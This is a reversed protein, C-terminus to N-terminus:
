KEDVVGLLTGGGARYPQASVKAGKCPCLVRQMHMVHEGHDVADIFVWGPEDHCRPCVTKARPSAKVFCDSATREDGPTEAESVAGESDDDHALGPVSAVGGTIDIHMPGHIDISLSQPQSRRWSRLSAYPENHSRMTPPFITPYERWQQTTTPDASKNHLTSGIVPSPLRDYVNHTPHPVRLGCVAPDLTRGAGEYAYPPQTVFMTSFQRRVNEPISM